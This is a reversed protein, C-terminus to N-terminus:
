KQVVQEKPGNKQLIIGRTEGPKAARSTTATTARTTTSRQALRAREADRERASLGRTDCGRRRAVDEAVACDGFGRRQADHVNRERHSFGHSDCGRQKALGPPVNCDGWGTKKGENWGQPRSSPGTSATAHHEHGRGEHHDDWDNDAHHKDKDKSGHENSSKGKGKDAPPGGGKGGKDYAYAPLLGLCVALGLVQLLRKHM